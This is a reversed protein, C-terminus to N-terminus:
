GHQRNKCKREENEHAAIQPLQGFRDDPEGPVHFLKGGIIGILAHDRHITGILNGNKAVREVAQHGLDVPLVVLKDPALHQIACHNIKGALRDEKNRHVAPSDTVNRGAAQFQGSISRFLELGIRSYQAFHDVGIVPIVPVFMAPHGTAAIEVLRQFKTQQGPLALGAPDVMEAARNVVVLSLIGPDPAAEAIDREPFLGLGGDDGTFFLEPDEELFGPVGDENDAGVPQDLLGVVFGALAITVAMQLQDVHRHRFQVSRFLAHMDGFPHCADHFLPLMGKFSRMAALLIRRHHDLDAGAQYIIFPVPGNQSHHAVYGGALQRLLKQVALVLVQLRQVLGRDSQEATVIHGPEQLRYDGPGSVQETSFVTIDVQYVCGAIFHLHHELAPDIVTEHMMRDFRTLPNGATDPLVPLRDLDSIVAAPFPAQRIRVPIAQMRHSAHREGGASLHDPRQPQGENVAIRFDASFLHVQQAMEPLQGRQRQFIGPEVIFEPTLQGFPFFRFLVQM